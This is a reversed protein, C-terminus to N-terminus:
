QKSTKWFAVVAGVAVIVLSPLFYGMVFNMSMGSPMSGAAGIFAAVGIVLIIIGIVKRTM